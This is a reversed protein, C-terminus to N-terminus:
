EQEGMWEEPIGDDIVAILGCRAEMAAEIFADMKAYCQSSCMEWTQVEDADDTLQLVFIEGFLVTECGTVHCTEMLPNHTCMARFGLQRMQGM